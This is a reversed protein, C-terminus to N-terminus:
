IGFVAKARATTHELVVEIPVEKVQAIKRAVEIVQSPEARRGRYPVPAAFPADTEILMRELPTTAISADYMSGYTVPGPFSLICGLDLYQQALEATGTFFHIIVKLGQAYEALLALMDAHASPEADVRKPNDRCHIILPKGVARALTVHQLFRAHQAQCEAETTGGRYYDLGCEGVGVVKPHQALSLFVETDFVEEPNDNPHLGVAAWLFDHQEALAIAGRSTDVDTGILVAGMAAERMRTLVEERDADFQPFHLHCHSDFLQM